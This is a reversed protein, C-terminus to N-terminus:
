ATHLKQPRENPMTLTSSSHYKFTSIDKLQETQTIVYGHGEARSYGFRKFMRRYGDDMCGYFYTIILSRTCPVWGLDARRMEGDVSVHM